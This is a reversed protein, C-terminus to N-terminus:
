SCPAPSHALPSRRKCGTSCSQPQRFEAGLLRQERSPRERQSGLQMRGSHGSQLHGEQKHHPELPPRPHLLMTLDLGMHSRAIAAKRMSEFSGSTEARPGRPRRKGPLHSLVFYRPGFGSRARSSYQKCLVGCQADRHEGCMEGWASAM